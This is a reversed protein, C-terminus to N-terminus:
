TSCMKWPVSLIPSTFRCPLLLPGCGPHLSQFSPSHTMETSWHGVDCPYGVSHICIGGWSLGVWYSCGGPLMGWTVDGKSARLLPSEAKGALPGQKGKGLGLCWPAMHKSESGEMNRTISEITKTRQTSTRKVPSLLFEKLNKPSCM